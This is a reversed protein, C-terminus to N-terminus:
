GILHVTKLNVFVNALKLKQNCKMVLVCVDGCDSDDYTLDKDEFYKRADENTM